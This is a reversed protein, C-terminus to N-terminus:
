HMLLIEVCAGYGYKDILKAILQNPQRVKSLIEDSLNLLEIRQDM